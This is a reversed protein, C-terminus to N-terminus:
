VSLNSIFALLLRFSCISWVFKVLLYIYRCCFSMFFFLWGIVYLFFSVFFQLFGYVSWFDIVFSLLADLKEFFFFFRQRVQFLFLFVFDLSTDLSDVVHLVFFRLQLRLIRAQRFCSYLFTLLRVIRNDWRRLRRRVKKKSLFSYLHRKFFNLLWFYFRKLRV